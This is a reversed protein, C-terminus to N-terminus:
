VKVTNKNIEVFFNSIITLALHLESDSLYVRDECFELLVSYGEPHLTIMQDMIDNDAGAVAITEPIRRKIRSLLERTWPHFLAQYEDILVIKWGQDVKPYEKINPQETEQKRPRRESKSGFSLLPFSHIDILLKHKLMFTALGKRWKSERSRARNMDMVSRPVEENIYLVTTSASKSFLDKLNRAISPARLDSTREERQKGESSKSEFAGHPVTLLISTMRLVCVCFFLTKSYFFNRLGEHGCM